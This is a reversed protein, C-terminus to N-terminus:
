PLMKLGCTEFKPIHVDRECLGHHLTICICKVAEPAHLFCKWIYPIYLVMSSGGFAMM